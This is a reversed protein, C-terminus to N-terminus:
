FPRGIDQHAAGILESLPPEAEREPEKRERLVLKGDLPIVGDLQIVFGKGDRKAWAGGINTWKTKGEGIDLPHLVDHTPLNKM